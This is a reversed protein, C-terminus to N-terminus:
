SAEVYKVMRNIINLIERNTPVKGYTRRHWAVITEVYKKQEPSLDPYIDKELKALLREEYQEKMPKILDIGLFICVIAALITVVKVVPDQSGWGILMAMGALILGTLPGWAWHNGDNFVDAVSM